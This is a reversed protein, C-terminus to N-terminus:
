SRIRFLGTAISRCRPKKISIESTCSLFTDQYVCRIASVHRNSSRYLHNGLRGSFASISSSIFELRHACVGSSNQQDRGGLTFSSGATCLVLFEGCFFVWFLASGSFIAALAGTVMVLVTLGMMNAIQMPTRDTMKGISFMLLSCSLAYGLWRTYYVIEGMVEVLWSGSWMMLYSILTIASVFFAARFNTSHADTKYDRLLFYTSSLAFIGAGILFLTNM